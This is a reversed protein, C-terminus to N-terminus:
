GLLVAAITLALVGTFVATVYRQANGNQSRRVASGLWLTDNGAASVARGLLRVDVREVLLALRVVGPAVTREYLDDTRFATMLLDQTAAGAAWDRRWAVYAALAGGAALAVSVASDLPEPRLEHVRIAAVGLALAPVALALMPGTMVPSVERATTVDGATGFFARLWARTAYAATVGTTLLLCALVVGGLVAPVPGAGASARAAAAVVADKSFFGATPPLAALTALGVTMTAFTLPMGRRLGGMRSLLGSGARIIVAGAALFLLAKFAGHALLHAVGALRSGVALAALMVAVQSITSYALVRKLDDTALAALAAGLMSVSALVALAALTAPAALFVPYLRAVLYAGAAVMTAAHILASVPAPGAMADPLWSHLPFQGAKALVGVTLLITGAFLTGPSMTPVAALVDTVRFSGAAFGLVFLGFLFGVDGARTMLFAKVAAASAAPREWYHGILLYSCAGMVEWGVYIVLLDASLVVTLMAATFVSVLAAYSRYRPQGRLYGVSYVQIALAVLTVMVAVTVSLGDVRVGLVIPIGGTPTLETSSELVAGTTPLAVLVTLALAAAVTMGGVAATAQGRRGLPLSAAAAVAPALVCGAALALMATTTM